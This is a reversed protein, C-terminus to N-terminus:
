QAVLACLESIDVAYELGGKSNATINRVLSWVQWQDGFHSKAWRQQYYQSKQEHKQGKLM